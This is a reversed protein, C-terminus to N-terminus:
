MGESLGVKQGVCGSFWNVEGSQVNMVLHSAGGSVLWQGAHHSGTIVTEGSVACGRPSAKSHSHFAGISILCMICTPNNFYSTMLVECNNKKLGQHNTDM